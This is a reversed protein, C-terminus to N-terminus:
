SNWNRWLFTGIGEVNLVGAERLKTMAREVTTWSTNQTLIAGVIVEFPTEAPWWHQPGWAQALTRYILRVQETARPRIPRKKAKRQPVEV